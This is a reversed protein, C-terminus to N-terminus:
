YVQHGSMKNRYTKNKYTSVGRGTGTNSYVTLACGSTQINCGASCGSVSNPIKLVGLNTKFVGGSVSNEQATIMYRGSAPWEQNAVLIKITIIDMPKFRKPTGPILINGQIPMEGINQIFRKVDASVSQAISPDLGSTGISDLMDGPYASQTYEDGTTDIIGTGDGIDALYGFLPIDIDASIICGEGYGGYNQFGGYYTYTTGTYNMYPELKYTGDPQLLARQAPYIYMIPGSSYDEPFSCYNVLKAYDGQSYCMYDLLHKVYEIDNNYDSTRNLIGEADAEVNKGIQSYIKDFTDPETGPAFTTTYGYRSYIFAVVRKMRECLQQASIKKPLKGGVFGNPDERWDYIGVNNDANLSLIVSSVGSITYEIGCNDLKYSVNNIIMRYKFSYSTGLNGNDDVWNYGYYFSYSQPNTSSYSRSMTNMLAAIQNISSSGMSSASPNYIDVYHYISITCTGAVDAGMPITHKVSLICDPGSEVYLNQGGITVGIFAVQSEAM